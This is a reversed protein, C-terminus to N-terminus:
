EIVLRALIESVDWRRWGEETRENVEVGLWGRLGLRGFSPLIISLAGSFDAIAWEKDTVSMRVNRTPHTHLQIWTRLGAHYADFQMRALEAGAVHVLHGTATVIPQQAPIVLRNVTMAHNPPEALQWVATRESGDHRLAAETEALVEGPIHFVTSM